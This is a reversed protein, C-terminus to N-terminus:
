IRLGNKELIEPMFTISTKLSNPDLEFVKLISTLKACAEEAEALSEFYLYYDDVYRFGKLNPFELQLLYDLECGIIESIILSIDPGIPIGMTQGDQLNRIHKDLVNGLLSDGREDKAVNKTHLAWPISHTYISPYYRSIDTKLLVRSGTSRLARESTLEGFNFDRILAREGSDSLVPKSVSLNSKIFHKQIEDWKNEILQSLKVYQLPNPISLHRRALKGKPIDFYVLKSVKEGHLNGSLSDLNAGLDKTTFPPPLEQPFFGDAILHSATIMTLGGYINNGVIINPIM